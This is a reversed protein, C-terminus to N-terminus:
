FDIRIREDLEITGFGTICKIAIIEVGAEAAERCALAFDPDREIFPSFSLVDSRQIVFFVMGRGGDKVYEALERLHRAGRPTPADPFLAVGDIVLNVSKCEVLCVGHPGELALDFRGSGYAPETRHSSYGRFEPIQDKLFADAILKNPLRSDTNVWQGKHKVQVLDYATIRKESEVPILAVEVGEVFLEAMRGSNPVHAAVQEGAVVVSARFRNERKRFEGKIINEAILM